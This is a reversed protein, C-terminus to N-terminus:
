RRTQGRSATRKHIWPRMSLTGFKVADLFPNPADLNSVPARLAPPDDLERGAGYGAVRAVNTERM